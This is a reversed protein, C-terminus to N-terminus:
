KQKEPLCANILDSGASVFLWLGASFTVVPPVLISGAASPSNLGTLTAHLMGLLGLTTKVIVKTSVECAEQSATQRQETAYASLGSFSGALLILLLMQKVTFDRKRFVSGVDM